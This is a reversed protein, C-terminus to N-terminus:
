KKKIPLGKAELIWIELSNDTRLGRLSTSSEFSTQRLNNLLLSCDPSYAKSRLTYNKMESKERIEVYQFSSFHKDVDDTSEACNQFVSPHVRRIHCHDLFLQPSVNSTLPGSGSNVVFLSEHSRSRTSPINSFLSFHLKSPVFSMRALPSVSTISLNSSSSSQEHQNITTSSTETTRTEDRKENTESFWYQHEAFAVLRSTSAVESQGVLSRFFLFVENQIASQDVHESFFLRDSLSDLYVCLPSSILAALILTTSIYREKERVRERNIHTQRDNRELLFFIFSGPLVRVQLRGIRLRVGYGNPWLASMYTWISTSCIWSLQVTGFLFFSLVVNYSSRERERTAINLQINSFTLTSRRRRSEGDDSFSCKNSAFRLFFRENERHTRSCNNTRAREKERRGRRDTWIHKETWWSLILPLSLRISRAPLPWHNSGARFRNSHNLDEFNM